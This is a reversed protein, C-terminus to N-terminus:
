VAPTTETAFDAAASTSVLELTYRALTNTGSTIQLYQGSAIPGNATLTVETGPAAAATSAGLATGAGNLGNILATVSTFTTGNFTGADVTPITATNGNFTARVIQYSGSFPGIVQKQGVTFVQVNDIVLPPSKRLSNAM